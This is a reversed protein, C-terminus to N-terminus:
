GVDATFSFTQLAPGGSRSLELKVAHRGSMPFPGTTQWRFELEGGSGVGPQPFHKMTPYGLTRDTSAVRWQYGTSANEPLRVVIPDGSKVKVTKGDDALTIAQAQGQTLAIPGAYVTTGMIGGSRAVYMYTADNPNGKPANPALAGVPFLATYIFGDPFNQKSLQASVFRQGLPPSKLTFSSGPVQDFAARAKALTEATITDKQPAAKLSVPGAYSTRGAFGGSREVFFSTAENPNSLPASPSLAGVPIKADYQYGDPFKDKTLPVTVFRTGMPLGTLSYATSPLQALAAKLKEVTEPTVAKPEKGYPLNHRVFFAEFVQRAGATLLEAKQQYFDAIVKSEGSTLIFREADAVIRLAEAKNISPRSSPSSPLSYQKFLQHVSIMSM